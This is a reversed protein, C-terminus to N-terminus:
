DLLRRTARGAARSMLVMGVIAACAGAWSAWSAYHRVVDGFLYASTGFTLAWVVGGLANFILFPRWGYGNAGALPGAFMRLLAVFRGFFVIKGGHVQFVRTSVDLHEPKVRILRGYKLLAARGFRRGGWYGLNDGLIAAIATLGIIWGIDLPGGMGAYVSASVLVTEGPLPIGASELAIVMFILPYGYTQFIAHLDAEM